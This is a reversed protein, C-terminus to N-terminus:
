MTTSTPTSGSRACAGLEGAAACGSWSRSATSARRGSTSWWCTPGAPDVAAANGALRADHGAARLMGLVNSGLLLDDFVAVVRAM